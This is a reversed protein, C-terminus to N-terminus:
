ADKVAAIEAFIQNVLEPDVDLTNGRYVYSEEGYIINTEDELDNIDRDIINLEISEESIVEQIIGGEIIIAVKM